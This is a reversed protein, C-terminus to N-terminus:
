PGDNHDSRAAIDCIARSSRSRHSRGLRGASVATRDRRRRTHLAADLLAPHVLFGEASAGQTDPLAIETLTSENAADRWAGALAQFAPGYHYGHDALDAYWDDLPLPEAGPPPWATAPNTAPAEPAVSTLYGTAHRTWVADGSEPDEPRAHVTLPRQEGDPPGLTLHLRVPEALDLPRELRLEGLHPHATGGAVTLALELFAAAPLIPRDGITHDVLWPHSDLGLRGTFLVTESDPLETTATLIPHQYPLLGGTGVPATPTLWYAQRQFPYTPLDPRDATPSDHSYPLWTAARDTTYLAAVAALFSEEEPRDKRLAPVAVSRDPGLITRTLATLTTDPGLELYQTAGLTRLTEVGQLFRVPRRIHETWYDATTIQDPDALAGTLNSVIPLLPPRYTVTAAVERFEDLVPDMHPSHFAHSVALSKTRRRDGFERAIQEAADSDGAIVVAQPGNVAALSVRGEQKRLLPTVEDETAEIAIMAGGPTATQMLRGRATVLKAADELSWLGALYAASLEGISHGILLDPTLGHHEALRFLAVHLAFLAPQTYRTENLLSAEATEPEALILDRISRDLHPELAATVEDLAAAFVPHTAYLDAGAGPRQSGQGSFLFVTKGAAGAVGTVVDPSQTASALAGLAASVQARDRGLVVARQDFRTRTSLVQALASLPVDPHQDVFAGLQGAQSRLASESKASLPLSTLADPRDPRDSGAASAGPAQEIILHANTGSIGFSSIGARRPHGNEPWPVPETLLQVTGSTWDVHRSPEDVHLTAPLLEHELAKIIKIVGAVGAAAQTHGINSKISGLYLPRNAPRNQGYTALIAQAEIPDGLTTGTGHAEVADVEDPRLGATALAQRIVRQQAPGNPATLGNSAGDQNVASGRIVGLVRHGNRQADSLRELLLLGAGEAWGTGDAADSFAKIRGDAALGRQRSFEIFTIPTAMVTVGGALALGCEGSRLAQAALHMAVLSSSCATDVTVAPGQLGLSYSVRGSAISGASGTKVYGEFGAPTSQFIQSGYDDYMLGAFVGTDTGALSTPDIGAREITEWATELLLRQQPDIALAERPSIGFFDADFHGARDLFGGHRTYSAGARDPDPDYLAAVNWGRDEPFPGIADLGDAVLRWLQDPSEVGGPYRCGMGIIAIPEDAAVAKTRARGPAAPRVGAFQEDLFRALAAPTPHDFTVTSPLRLATAGGLRNRLEVAALSDFGADKFSRAPDVSRVDAHGLASAVAGLVVDLLAAQREASSLGALRRALAPDATRRGRGPAGPTLSRLVAPVTQAGISDTSPVPTGIRAPVVVSRGDALAADFWRLGLEADIPVLGVRNLRAAEAETLTAAMGTDWLGWALSTAPQGTARGRRVALADLFSNAAAYNAQGANGILGAVSSFLAFVALDGDRTLEHLHWAADVKPRLVADLQDATLSSITADDLVGATHVVATLPHEAPIADLLGRVQNRDALDAAAFVVDAGLGALEDRLAEAGPAALGRRSVLLLRRAGHEAVLHRAFLTGLSGTAGTVLVTGDRNLVSPRAPTSPAAERALRPVLLKGDRVAIQPEGTGLAADLETDPGDTDPSDTDILVLRGPHENQASRILGWVAAQALDGINESGDTAVAGRTVIALRADEPQETALWQQVFQLVSKTVEHVRAPLDPGLGDDNDGGNGVQLVNTADSVATKEPAAVSNWVLHLLPDPARGAQLGRIDVRRMALSAITAITTGDIDTIRLAFTDTGISAVQVRLETPHIGVEHITIGSWAFPVLPTPSADGDGAQDALDILISHLAADLLAPHLVYREATGRLEEPLAAAAHITILDSDRWAATLGQFAPGYLYGLEQLDLYLEATPLSIAGAPPWQEDTPGIQPVEPAESSVFGHAHRTWTLANEPRSHVSVPRRPGEAPGLAVQVQVPETLVLPQELTLEDVYPLDSHAGVTLAFDLLATGPLLPTEGITHDALYPHTDLSLTGSYIATDSDPVTTMATLVPHRHALLGGTGSAAPQTLWFRQRQLPYTPIESALAPAPPTSRSWTVDRGATYLAAVAALFSEEEPRDKRLVPVSLSPDPGLITRTLATLTTDPGLELYHTTGLTRLTEIGQHFRVPRRIHGTWYDATTILEPDAPTGSLNSVIPLLPTRYTVTAAVQRFEELVTDMHPSHFAHSVTLAKVRRDSKRFSQAIEEAADADGAIVLATPGNVAALSVRGEYKNLQPTIEDETAEIAIMAGGPTASQMLRGRATVLKAADELSWLGALYAASLEGISHGILTDPTLGHHEALRFLAVHLAFLAPQTYRTENLLAADATGSEALILEKISRDLHVDLAAAAEDLAATFVPYAAYLGAGMGPHQSGQGSFLFALGGPTGVQGVIAEATPIGSAVASLGQLVRDREQEVVVARHSFVAQRALASALDAPNTGPHEELFSALQAARAALAAESKASFMLPPPTETDRPAGITDPRPTPPQEIILHANTGSIGFSSVGARRPHGNEPWSVPETM